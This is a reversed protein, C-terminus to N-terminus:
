GEALETTPNYSFWAFWFTDLHNVPELRSGALPGEVAEGAVNWRSSTEEDVFYGDDARFTLKRDEVEPRFVRVSGVDRGDAIQGSELATAQGSKWFIVVEADGVRDHTARATGGSIAELTWAKAAGELSVGAVRRQLGLRDDTDGRFLFPFSSPNDYDVYPNSGYSRVYGTRARDLM